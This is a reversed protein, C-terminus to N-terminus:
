FRSAHRRQGGDRAAVDGRARARLSPPLRRSGLPGPDARRATPVAAPDHPPVGARDRQRPGTARPEARDADIIRAYTEPDAKEMWAFLTPGVNFSLREFNNVPRDRRRATPIRAFANPGTASTRARARELRSRPRRVAARPDDGPGPDERPPQYFHRTSANDVSCGCSEWASSADAPGLSRPRAVADAEAM